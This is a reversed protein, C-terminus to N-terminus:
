QMIRFVVTIQHPDFRIASYTGINRRSEGGGSVTTKQILFYTKEFLYETNTSGTKFLMKRKGCNNKV